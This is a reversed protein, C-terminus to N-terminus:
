TTKTVSFKLDNVQRNCPEYEGSIDTYQIKKRAIICEVFMGSNVKHAEYNCNLSFYEYM